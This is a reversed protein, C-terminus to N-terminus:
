LGKLDILGITIDDTAKRERAEKLLAKPIALPDSCNERMSHVTKALYQTTFMDTLGDSCVLLQINKQKELNALDKIMIKPRPTIPKFGNKQQRLYEDGIARTIALQGNVRPFDNKSYQVYGGRKIVSKQAEEESTKFDFSLQETEDLEDQILIARCDGCNAIFLRKEFMFALIAACGPKLPGNLGKRYSELSSDLLVFTMKLANSIEWDEGKESLAELCKSLTDKVNDRCFESALSGGHGDFIAFCSATKQGINVKFLQLTDENKPHRTGCQSIFCGDYCEVNELSALSVPTSANEQLEKLKLNLNERVVQNQIRQKEKNLKQRLIDNNLLLVAEKKPLANLGFLKIIRPDIIIENDTSNSIVLPQCASKDLNLFIETAIDSTEKIQENEVKIEIEFLNLCAKYRQLKRVPQLKQFHDDATNDFPNQRKLTAEVPQM